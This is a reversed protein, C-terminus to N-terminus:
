REFSWTEIEKGDIRAITLRGYGREDIHVGTDIGLVNEHWTPEPTPTHGSVVCWVSEVPGLHEHGTEGIDRQVFGHRVRSWLARTGDASDLARAGDNPTRATAGILPGLFRAETHEALGTVGSLPARFTLVIIVLPALHHAGSPTHVPMRVEVPAAELHRPDDDLPDVGVRGQDADGVLIEFPPALVLALQAERVALPARDQVTRPSLDSFDEEVVGLFSLTKSACM